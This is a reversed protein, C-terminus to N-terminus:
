EFQEVSITESAERCSMVRDAGHPTTWDYAANGKGRALVPGEAM